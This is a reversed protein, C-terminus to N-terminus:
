NRAIYPKHPYEGPNNNLSAIVTTSLPWKEIGKTVMDKLGKFVLGYNNYYSTVTTNLM